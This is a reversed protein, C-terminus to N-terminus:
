PANASSEPKTTTLDDSIQYVVYTRRIAPDVPYIRTLGASDFEASQRATDEVSQPILLHTAQCSHAIERRQGDRLELFGGPLLNGIDRFTNFRRHWEVIGGADQPADKWCVAEARHAYWKFTQQALPTIFVANSPTNCRIWNCVRQWNEATERTRKENDPYSPLSAADAAARPDRHIQEVHLGAAVAIVVGCAIAVRRRAPQRSRILSHALKGVMLALCLPVAFDSFRFWYFRLLSDAFPSVVTQSEALSSLLLGALSILLSGGGFWQMRQFAMDWPLLQTLAM